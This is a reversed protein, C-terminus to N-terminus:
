FIEEEPRMEGMTFFKTRPSISLLINPDPFPSGGGGRDQLWKTAVKEVM